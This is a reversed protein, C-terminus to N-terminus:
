GILERIKEKASLLVRQETAIENDIVSCTSLLDKRWYWMCLECERGICSCQSLYILDKLEKTTYKMNM